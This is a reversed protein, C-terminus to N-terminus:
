HKRKYAKAFKLAQSKTKFAKFVTYLISFNNTVRVQWIAQKMISLVNVSVGDIRAWSDDKGKKWDKLAM